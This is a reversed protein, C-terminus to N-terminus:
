DLTVHLIKAHAENQECTKHDHDFRKDITQARVKNHIRIVRLLRVLRMVRALRAVRAGVRAAKSAQLFNSEGAKNLLIDSEGTMAAWIFTVDGLIAITAVFDLFFYFGCFYGETAISSLTMEITFGVFVILTIVNFYPDAGKGTAARRFDDVFLAYFTLLAVILTVTTSM